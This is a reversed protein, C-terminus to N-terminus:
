LAYYQSDGARGMREEHWLRNTTVQVPMAKNSRGAAELARHIEAPGHTGPHEALWTEIARTLPMSVYDIGEPTELGADINGLPQIM